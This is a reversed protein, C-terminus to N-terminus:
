MPCVALLALIVVAHVAAHKTRQLSRTKRANRLNFTSSGYMVCVADKM